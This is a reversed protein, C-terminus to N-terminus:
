GADEIELPRKGAVRGVVEHIGINALTLYQAAFRGEAHAVVSQAGEIRLMFLAERDIPEKEAEFGGDHVGPMVIRRTCM